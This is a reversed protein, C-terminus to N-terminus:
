DDVSTTLGDSGSQDAILGRLRDCDVDALFREAPPFGDDAVSEALEAAFSQVNPSVTRDGVTTGAVAALELADAELNRALSDDGTERQVTQDRGFARVTEVARDSAETKALLYFGRAVLVDAVLIDLDGSESTGTEWPEESALRRTLRLGDYILQVGAAREGVPDALEDDTAQSVTSSTARAFRITLVGPAMSGQDLWEAIREHLGAPEVDRVAGLAARRTAGAEDM